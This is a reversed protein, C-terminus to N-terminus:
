RLNRDGRGGRYSFAILCAPQAPVCYPLPHPTPPRPRLQSYLIEGMKLEM